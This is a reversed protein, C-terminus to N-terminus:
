GKEYGAIVYKYRAYPCETETYSCIREICFLLDDATVMGKGDHFSVNKRIVFTFTMTQADFTWNEIVSPLIEGNAEIKIAPEVWWPSYM